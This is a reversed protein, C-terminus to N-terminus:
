RLNLCAVIEEIVAEVDKNTTDIIVAAEDVRLPSHDRSSDIDDRRQISAATEDGRRRAREEPSATLFVKLLADPFVVTGIDRGEVVTGAPQRNSWERQRDVMAARVDPNAAVISVAHNVEPQRIEITVDLGNITVAPITEIRANSAISSVSSSNNPDIGERLALATVARYMAGTDLFSWQLRDALMKAITSKGSGAPGDIAVVPSITM